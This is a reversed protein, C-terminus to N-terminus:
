FLITRSLGFYKRAGIDVFIDHAITLFTIGRWYCYYKRAGSDFVYNFGIDSIFNPASSLFVTPAPDIEFLIPSMTTVSVIIFYPAAVIVYIRASLFLNAYHHIVAAGIGYRRM